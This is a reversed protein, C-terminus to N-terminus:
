ANLMEDGVQWIQQSGDYVMSFERAKGATIDATGSTYISGSPLSITITSAGTNKIRFTYYKGTTISSLAFGSNASLSIKYYGYDTLALTLTTLAGSFSEVSSGSSPTTLVFTTGNSSVVKGNNGVPTPLATQFKGNAWTKIHTALDTLFGM